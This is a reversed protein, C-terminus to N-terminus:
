ISWCFRDTHIYNASLIVINTHQKQLLINFFFLYMIFVHILRLVISLAIINQLNKERNCVM